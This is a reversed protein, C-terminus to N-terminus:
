HQVAEAITVAQQILPNIWESVESTLRPDASNPHGAKFPPQPDYEMILQMRKAADEGRIKALVSLGFDIGATVGGGSIRNRDTVVRESVTEVNMAKLVPFYAWHTTSKYGDLLGAAGLITSGSCVSTVYDATAGRSKLFALLEPDKMAENSGFGGPLLLIDLHQPCDSFTMTPVVSFSCDTMVPDLTKSLLYTKCSMSLATLPGVFDLATMFPYLVIGLALPEASGVIAEYQNSM